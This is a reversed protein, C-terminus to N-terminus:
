KAGPPKAPVPKSGSRHSMDRDTAPSGSQSSQNPHTQQRSGSQTPRAPTASQSDGATHGTNKSTQENMRTTRRELPTASRSSAALINHQHATLLGRAPHPRSESSARVPRSRRPRGPPHLPRAPTPAGAPPSRSSSPPGRAPPSGSTPTSPEGTALPAHALRVPTLQVTCATFRHTCRSRAFPGPHASKGGM